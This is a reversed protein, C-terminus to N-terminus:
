YTKENHVQRETEQELLNLTGIEDLKRTEMLSAQRKRSKTLEDAMIHKEAIM